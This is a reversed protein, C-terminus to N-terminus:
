ELFARRLKLLIAFPWCFIFVDVGFFSFFANQEFLSSTSALTSTGEARGNSTDLRVEIGLVDMTDTVDDTVDLVARHRTGGGTMGGPM